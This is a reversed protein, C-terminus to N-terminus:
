LQNMLDNIGGMSTVLSFVLTDLTQFDFYRSLIEENFSYSLGDKGTGIGLMSAIADGLFVICTERPAVVPAKQLHHNRVIHVLNEPFNWKEFAMASLEAHSIGLVTREAEFFPVNQHYVLADIEKAADSMYRNLIVKGIDKILAATFILNASKLDHQRAIERAYCASVMSHRWLEGKQLGYGKQTAQLTPAALSLLAIELIRQAGLLAVARDISDVQQKLGYYASNALKLVNTVLNADTKIAAAIESLARVDDSALEILQHITESFPALNDIQSIIRQANM